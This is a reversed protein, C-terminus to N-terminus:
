QIYVNNVLVKVVIYDSMNVVSFMKGCVTNFILKKNAVVKNKSKASSFQNSAVFKLHPLSCKISQKAVLFIQSLLTKM